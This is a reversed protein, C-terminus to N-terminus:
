RPAHSLPSQAVTTAWHATAAAIKQDLELRTDIRAIGINRYYHEGFPVLLPDEIVEVVVTAGLSELHRALRALSAGPEGDPSVGVLLALGRFDHINATLDVAAIQEYAEETLRLGRLTTEGREALEEKPDPGRGPRAGEPTQLLGSITRFRLAQRLYQRGQRVPEWLGVLGLGLRECALAAVTGGFLAGLLGVRRVGGKGLMWSVAHEVEDLRAALSVDRTSEPESHDGELGPRIRLAPFGHVALERAVMTELRRLHAQESGLSPCIVWGTDSQSGVPRSLIGLGGSEALRVDLFEESIGTEPDTYGRLRNLFEDDIPM